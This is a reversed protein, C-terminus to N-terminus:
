VGGQWPINQNTGGKRGCSRGRTRVRASCSATISPNCRVAGSSCGRTGWLVGTLVGYYGQLYEATRVRASCSATTSPNCRVAGSSCGRTGWLVGILVESYGQSYGLTGRHTGGYYGQSFEATRVRASCSAATSPNCRVAGSSCGRTGWLVETLVGSYGQSFEATRVPVSCSAATSPKCYLTHRRQHV